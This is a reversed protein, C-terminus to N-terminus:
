WYKKFDKCVGVPCVCVDKHKLCYYEVSQSCYEEFHLCNYCCELNLEKYEIKEKKM